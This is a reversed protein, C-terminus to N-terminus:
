EEKNLDGRGRAGSMNHVHVLMGTEIDRSAFGIQQGYKVIPSNRPIEKVAVKYGFPIHEKLDITVTENKLKFRIVDGPLAEELVNVVNDIPNLILARRFAM